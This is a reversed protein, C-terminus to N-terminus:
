VTLARDCANYDADTWNTSKKPDFSRGCVKQVWAYFRKNWTEVDGTPEPNRARWDALLGACQEKTVQPPPPAQRKGRPLESPAEPSPDPNEHLSQGDLDTDAITINFIRCTLVRQGYSGTSICGQVANMGGIANGKPGIGDVPLDVWRRESHGERHIIDCVIRKFGEKTSDDESFSLAFGHSTYIPKARHTITELRVYRSRTQTNEADRVITPLEAQCANLAAAFAERARAARWQEHLDVLSRLQDPSMGKDVAAQLLTLPNVAAIAQSPQSEVLEATDAGREEDLILQHTV